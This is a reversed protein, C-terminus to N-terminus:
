YVQWVKPDCNRNSGLLDEESKQSHGTFDENGYKKITQGTIYPFSYDKWRWMSQDLDLYRLYVKGDSGVLFLQNGLFCPGPSGVLVVSIRPTGHEIWDWGDTSSWHYEILKGDESLLFLSGTLSSSSPRMATGPIRSLVLHQSQYHEHWLETIKNYQYLRSNRGVVFVINGRIVEQDM